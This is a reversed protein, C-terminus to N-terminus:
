NASPEGATFANSGRGSSKGRRRSKTSRRQRQKVTPAAAVPAILLSGGEGGASGSIPCRWRTPGSGCTESRRRATRCPPSSRM